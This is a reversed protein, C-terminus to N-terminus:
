EGTEKPADDPSASECHREVLLEGNPERLPKLGDFPVAGIGVLMGFLSAPHLAIGENGNRM